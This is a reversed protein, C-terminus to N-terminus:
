PAVSILHIEVLEIKGNLDSACIDSPMTPPLLFTVIEGERMILLCEEIAPNLTNVKLGTAPIEERCLNQSLNTVFMNFTVRSEENVRTGNFQLQNYYYGIGSSSFEYNAIDNNKFYNIMQERDIDELVNCASIGILLLLIALMWPSKIIKM